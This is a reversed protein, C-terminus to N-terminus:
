NNLKHRYAARDVEVGRKWVTVINRSDRFDVTPDGQVLLLDARKGAV